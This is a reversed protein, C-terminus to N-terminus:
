GSSTDPLVSPGKSSLRIFYKGGNTPSYCQDIRHCANEAMVAHGSSPMISGTVAQNTAALPADRKVVGRAIRPSVGKQSKALGSIYPYLM